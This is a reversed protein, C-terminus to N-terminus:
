RPHPLALKGEDIGVALVGIIRQQEDRVPLSVMIQQKGTSEDLYPKSVHLEGGSAHRFVEEDGQWYDSTVVSQGVNLGKSDMVFIETYLGNWRAAWATLYSSLDNDMVPKVLTADGARWRTDLDSIDPMTLEAHMANQARVTSVVQLSAALTTLPNEILSRLAGKASEANAPSFCLLLLAGALLPQIARSIVRMYVM